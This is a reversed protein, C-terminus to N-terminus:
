SNILSTAEQKMSLVHWNSPLSGMKVLTSEPLEQGIEFIKKLTLRKIDLASNYDRPAEFGCFPCKHIRESLNKAVKEGCNSCRQTTGKHDVLMYLKGAREAKYAIMQRLKGWSADLIHKALRSNVMNTIIMDEMGIADYNDVYYKSLKHLFDNRANLLKEYQRTLRVRMKNRNNSSKKKKSMKRQLLALKESHKKLHRPNSIKNGDSDYVIDTLGVDIGIVKRIPKLQPNEKSLEEIVFAFWKGSVEKKIMIQKVKGKVGRHCRIRIDGIKSLHLIQCRKGTKILKFGSQNYTFTKFWGKGKSRLRGIKKGKKKLQSLAKLNSFLRYSEYQLTKSYVKKLKPDCIKMDPIISQIQSKDVVKQRNLENLLFNYTQRCLELTELLKVEQKKNPYLRFKHAIIVAKEM